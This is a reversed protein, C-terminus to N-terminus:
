ACVDTSVNENVRGLRYGSRSWGLQNINKSVLLYYYWKQDPPHYVSSLVICITDVPIKAVLHKVLIHNAEQISIGKKIVGPEGVYRFLGIWSKPTFELARITTNESESLVRVVDGPKFEPPFPPNM